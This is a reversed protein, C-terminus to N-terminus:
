GALIDEGNILFSIKKVFKSSINNKISNVIVILFKKPTFICLAMTMVFLPNILNLPQTKLMLWYERFIYRYPKKSYNRIQFLGIWNSCVFKKKIDLNIKKFRSDSFVVDVVKLWSWVPSIDYIGKESICQSSSVRVAITYRNMFGITHGDLVSLFPIVHSTFVNDGFDKKVASRRLCLGSLQDLTSLMLEIDSFDSKNSVISYTTHKCEIAKKYRIPKKISKDFAYYPRTLAGSGPNLDFFSVVDEIASDALYDDQAMLFVLPATSLAYAKKIAIPYGLNESSSYVKIRKDSFNRVIEVTEDTSCDDYIIVNFEKYSQSVITNLTDLITNGGNYTPMVVDLKISKEKIM